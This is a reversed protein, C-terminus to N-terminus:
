NKIEIFLQIKEKLWKQHDKDGHKIEEYLQMMLKKTDPIAVDLEGAWIIHNRNEGKLQTKQEVTSAIFITNTKTNELISKGAIIRKM